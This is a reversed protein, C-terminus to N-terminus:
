GDEGEKYYLIEHVEIEPLEYKKEGLPCKDSFCQLVDKGRYNSASIMSGCGPCRTTIFIKVKM